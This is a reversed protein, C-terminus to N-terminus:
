RANSERKRFEELSTKEIESLHAIQKEILEYHDDLVNLELSVDLLRFDLDVNIEM